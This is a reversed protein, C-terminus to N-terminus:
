FVRFVIKSGTSVITIIPAVDVEVVKDVVPIRRIKKSIDFLIAHVGDIPLLFNCLDIM